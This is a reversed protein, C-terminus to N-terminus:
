LCIKKNEESYLEEIRKKLLLNEKKELNEDSKYLDIAVSQVDKLINIDKYLNAIKMEPLGHQRTGFFDGPGRLHLDKESIVFGDNSKCMISMREKAVKTKSDTVLVCYSKEGGRGVRGRLQHLASLGFREANEIIMLTANPVNVGVEIVTTSVLVDIEGSSFRDMIDQKENNKLKGHMCEVRLDPLRDNKLEETFKLVSRLDLKENEEIMPCIIYCQRGKAVEKEIFAYLRNDYTHNVAFTDVKQRGPPLENITSIDLDGYLILALTRPIPTATMVLIDPNIGKESLKSRQRVGFRHQEDTIVIGLNNFEVKDEILAHTGILIDIEKNKVRELVKEKQKKTLSGVLLEIEMGFPKLTESLSIYHQEALIETPAMLAGQYGNLVCNALALLAVVTKGSGVDGQVLRNMVKNSQMDEIIENLARNQANTLKFPLAKLINDLNEDRNFKIGEVETTGNKFMFLGLQLILFEEFVIRYLAIKLAEKSTPNHINRIAYDISCLKYKEIIRQPLYEKIRLEENNLVSKIISIIEKNTVGYTLPYIPMVKCTSKPANTLHEIECSSLEITKFEKKVKGFVLVTDGCKYLNKIHPQNFFALKAYGTEDKIDIKTLTMGKKPNTTNVSVIVAKITAKEDNQLQAIKKLNNRDEFQRPFYFLLDKLTFIGLKNLKYAKKPGIGKVYQIDKELDIM